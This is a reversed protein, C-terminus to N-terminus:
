LSDNDADDDYNHTVLQNIINNYDDDGKKLSRM